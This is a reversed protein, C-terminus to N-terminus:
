ITDDGTLSGGSIQESDVVLIQSLVEVRKLPKGNKYITVVEGIDPLNELADSSYGGKTNKSVAALIYDGGRLKEKIAAINKEGDLIEMKDVFNESVGCVNCLAKEDKSLTVQGYNTIAENTIVGNVQVNPMYEKIEIGENGWEFSIDSNDVTNKYLRTGNRVISNKEVQEIAEENLAASSELM